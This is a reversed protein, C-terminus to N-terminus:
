LVPPSGTPMRTVVPAPGTLPCPAAPPRTPPRGGNRAVYLANSAALREQHVRDADAEAAGHRQAHGHPITELFGEPLRGHALGADCALRTRLDTDEAGWGAFVEAYGGVSRAAATPCIVVGCLEDGGSPRFEAALEPQSPPPGPHHAVYYAAPSLALAALDGRVLTDADLFFVFPTRVLALGDNRAAALHWRATPRRLVTLGPFGQSLAWAGAGDPCGYDVLVVPVAGAYLPLTQALHALRGRCTVVVTLL